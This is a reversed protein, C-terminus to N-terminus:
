NPHNTISHDCFPHEFMKTACCLMWKEFTYKVTKTMKFFYDVIVVIFHSFTSTVGNKVGNLKVLLDTVMMYCLWDVLYTRIAREPSQRTGIIIHDACALCSIVRACVCLNSM